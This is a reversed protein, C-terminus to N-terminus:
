GLRFRGNVDREGLHPVLPGGDMSAKAVIRAIVQRAARDPQDVGLAELEATLQTMWFSSPLVVRGPTEVTSIM